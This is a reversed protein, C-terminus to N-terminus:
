SPQLYMLTAYKIYRYKKDGLKLRAELEVKLVKTIDGDNAKSFLLKTVEIKNSRTNRPYLYLPSSPQLTGDLYTARVYKGDYFFKVYDGAHEPSSLEPNLIITSSSSTTSSGVFTVSKNTNVGSKKWDASSASLDLKSPIFIGGKIRMLCQFAGQQLDSVQNMEAFKAFFTSFGVAAVAMLFGSIVIVVMLETITFGAQSKLRNSM